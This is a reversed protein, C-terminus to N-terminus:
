GIRELKCELHGPDTIESIRYDPGRQPDTYVCVGDGVELRVEAGAGIDLMYAEQRTEAHYVARHAADILMIKTQRRIVGGATNTVTTEKDYIHAMVPVAPASFGEYRGGERADQIVERNMLYYESLNKLRM